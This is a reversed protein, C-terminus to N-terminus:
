PISIWKELKIKVQIEIISSALMTHEQIPLAVNEAITMSNFLAGSQFLIGFRKRLADATRADATCLDVEGDQKLRYSIHGAAPRLEGILCNLLTSKGCGSGGMVVLTEGRYVDLSVGDLVTQQGGDPKDFRMVVDRVSIVSDTKTETMGM